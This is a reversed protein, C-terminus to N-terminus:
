KAETQTPNYNFAFAEGQHWNWPRFYEGNKIVLAVARKDSLRYLTRGIRVVADGRSFQDGATTWTRMSWLSGVFEHTYHYGPKGPVQIECTRSVGHGNFRRHVILATAM